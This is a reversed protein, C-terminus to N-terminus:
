REIALLEAVRDTADALAEPTLGPDAIEFPPDDRREGRRRLLLVGDGAGPAPELVRKRLLLLALVYRFAVRKPDTAEALSELVGLLSGPEIVVREPEKGEPARASWFAFLRDPRAGSSWASESFDLRDLAEDDEREVLTAVYPDGPEFAEGTAHCRGAHRGLDYRTAAPKAM